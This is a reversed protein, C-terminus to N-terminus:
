ATGGVLPFYRCYCFVIKVCTCVFPRPVVYSCVSTSLICGPSSNSCGPGSNSVVSNYLISRIVLRQLKQQNLPEQQLSFTDNFLAGRSLPHSTDVMMHVLQQRVSRVHTISAFFFSFIIVIYCVSRVHM